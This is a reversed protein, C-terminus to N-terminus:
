DDSENEHEKFYSYSDMPIRCDSITPPYEHDIGALNIIGSTKYKGWSNYEDGDIIIVYQRNVLFDELTIGESQLFNDLLRMSQHDITGFNPLKWEDDTKVAKHWKGDREYAMCSEYTGDENQFEHYHADDVDLENGEQDNYVSEWHTPFNIDWCEPIYKTILPQMVQEMFDAGVHYPAFTGAYTAIAYLVKDKFTTLIRFPWRGYEQDDSSWVDWVGKKDIYIGDRMEDDTYRGQNKMVAVSHMSSSNTEHVGLRVTYKM